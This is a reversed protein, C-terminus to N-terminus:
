LGTKSDLNLVEVISMVALFEEFLTQIEQYETIPKRIDGLVLMDKKCSLAILISSGRFSARIENANFMAKLHKFREIFTTTIIYRAEVEDDTYVDFMKNFEIDELETKNLGLFMKPLLLSGLSFKEKIITHSTTIKNSSLKIFIGNFIDVYQKNSKERLELKMESIIFKTESFNGEFYDDPIWANFIGVLKSAKIEKEDLFGKQRWQFNGFFTLFVEIVTDKVDKEFSKKFKKANGLTDAGVLFLSAAAVTLGFTWNAALSAWFVALILFGVACIVSLVGSYLYIKYKFYKAKRTEEFTELIPLIKGYYYEHFKKRYEKAEQTTSLM